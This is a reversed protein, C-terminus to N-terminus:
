RDSIMPTTRTLFNEQVLTVFVWVCTCRTGPRGLRRGGVNSQHSSRQGFSFKGWSKGHKPGPSTLHSVSSPSTRVLGRRPPTLSVRFSPSRNSDEGELRSPTPPLSALWFRLTRRTYFLSSTVFLTSPFHSGIISVNLVESHVVVCPRTYHRGRSPIM